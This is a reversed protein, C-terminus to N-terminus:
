ALGVSRDFEEETNYLNSFFRHIDECAGFEGQILLMARKGTQPDIAHDVRYEANGIIRGSAELHIEFMSCDSPLELVIQRLDTKSSATGMYRLIENGAASENDFLVKYMYIVASALADDRQLGRDQKRLHQLNQQLLSRIRADAQADRTWLYFLEKLLRDVDEELVLETIKTNVVSGSGSQVSRQIFYPVSQSEDPREVWARIDEVEEGIQFMLHFGWVYVTTAFSKQTEITADVLTRSPQKNM